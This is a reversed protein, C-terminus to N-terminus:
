LGEQQQRTTTRKRSPTYIPKPAAEGSEEETVPDAISFKGDAVRVFLKDAKDAAKARAGEPDILTGGARTMIDIIIKAVASRILRDPITSTDADMDVGSSAVHGRVEATIDTIAPQVPDAQDNGLVIERFSDLEVSSIKKLVDAETIARWSM